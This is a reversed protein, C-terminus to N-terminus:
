NLVLHLGVFSGNEKTVERGEKITSMQCNFNSYCILIMFLLSIRSYM